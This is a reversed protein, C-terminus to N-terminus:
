VAASACQRQSATPQGVSLDINQTVARNAKDEMLWAVAVMRIIRPVAAASCINREFREFGFMPDRTTADSVSRMIETQLV